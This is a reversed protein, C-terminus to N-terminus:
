NEEEYYYDDDNDHEMALQNEEFTQADGFPRAEEWDVAQDFDNDFDNEM